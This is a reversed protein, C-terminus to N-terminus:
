VRDTKKDPEGSTASRFETIGKGLAKGLEPLKGPGYIILAIVLIIILATPTMFGFVIQM